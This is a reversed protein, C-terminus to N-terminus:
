WGRYVDFEAFGAAANTGGIYGPYNAEGTVNVSNAARIMSAADNAIAKVDASPTKGYNNALWESLGYSLAAEYGEPLSVESNVDAFATIKEFQSIVVQYSNDPTPYLLISGQPYSPTYVFASPIGSTTKPSIENYEEQTIQKCMYDTPSAPNAINDRVLLSVIRTPRQIAWAAGTGIAYTATGGTATVTSTIMRYLMTEKLSWVGIMMNLVRLGEQAEAASPVDGVADINLIRRANKIIDLVTTM